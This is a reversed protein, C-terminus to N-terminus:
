HGDFPREAPQPQRWVIRALSFSIEPGTSLNLIGQIDAALPLPEKPAPTWQPARFVNWPATLISLAHIQGATQTDAAYVVKRRALDVERGDAM